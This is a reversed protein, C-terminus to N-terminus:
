FEIVNAGARPALARRARAVLTDYELEPHDLLLRGLERRAADDLRAEVLAGVLARRSLFDDPNLYTAVRLELMGYKPQKALLLGGLAGHAEPRGIGYRVAEALTRRGELTDRLTVLSLRAASLNAQWRASDDVAGFRKWAEEAADRRGSWLLAWGLWYLNDSRSGGSELARRFADAAGAPRDLLLLDSGVQFFPDAARRYLGRLEVGDWFFFRCPARGATSDSYQSFFYSALSPNRYLARVLAGNGTQFGANPPLTAFYFRAGRPPAPELAVLNASLARTLREARELYAAPVHSTWVWPDDAVAFARTGSGGAHWWFLLAALALFGARGLRRAALGVLVAGGVAAVTYFYGSWIGAVPGILLAFAAFWALGLRLAPRPDFPAPTAPRAPLALTVLAALALAAPDPGRAFLARAFGAPHELGLLSQAGHALAADYGGLSLPHLRSGPALLAVRLAVAGWVAALAAFPAARRLAELTPRREVWASWAFIAVPLALASEKSAMAALAAVLALGRRGRRFLALTALSGVLALLDQACSVWTLNVRQFPLLAFYLTGALAGAAPLLALLLDALLALAALFLAFGAAHFLAPHGGVGPALLGFWLQRSLPRYYNGIAGPEALTAAWPRSGPPELFAYDDSLFGARLPERYLLGLALALALAALGIRLARSGPRALVELMGPLAM